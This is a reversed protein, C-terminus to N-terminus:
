LKIYMEMTISSYKKDVPKICSVHFQSTPTHLRDLTYTLGLSFFISYIATVPSAVMIAIEKVFNCIHKHIYRYISTDDADIHVNLHRIRLPVPIM